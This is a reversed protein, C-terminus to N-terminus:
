CELRDNFLCFTSEVSLKELGYVLRLHYCNTKRGFEPGAITCVKEQCDANLYASDIDAVLVEFNNSEAVTFCDQCERKICCFFIYIICTHRGFTGLHFQAKRTFDRNVYFIVHCDIHQYGFPAKNDNELFKFVPMGNKNRETHVEAM